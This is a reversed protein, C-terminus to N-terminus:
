RVMYQLVEKIEADQTPKFVAMLLLHYKTMRQMVRALHHEMTLRDTGSGMCQSWQLTREIRFALLEGSVCM